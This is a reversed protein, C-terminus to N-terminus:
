SEFNDVARDCPGSDDPGDFNDVARDCPGSDDPGISKLLKVRNALYEGCLLSPHFKDMKGLSKYAQNLDGKQDDRRRQNIEQNAHGLLALADVLTKVTATVSGPSITEGSRTARVLTNAAETVAIM